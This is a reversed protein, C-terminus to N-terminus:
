EIWYIFKAHRSNIKTSRILRSEGGLEFPRVIQKKKRQSCDMDMSQIYGVLEVHLRGRSRIKTSVALRDHEQVSEDEAGNNDVQDASLFCDQWAGDSV